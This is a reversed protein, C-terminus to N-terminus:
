TRRIGCALMQRRPVGRAVCKTPPDLMKCVFLFYRSLSKFGRVEHESASLSGISYSALLLAVREAHPYSPFACCDPGCWLILVVWLWARKM